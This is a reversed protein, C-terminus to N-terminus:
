YYITKNTSYLSALVILLSFSHQIPSKEEVCQYGLRTLTKNFSICHDPETLFADSLIDPTGEWELTVLTYALGLLLPNESYRTHLHGQKFQHLREQIEDFAILTDM